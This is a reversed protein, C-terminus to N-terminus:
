LGRLGSAIILNRCIMNRCIMNRYDTGIIMTEL